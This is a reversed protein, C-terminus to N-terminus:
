PDASHTIRQSWIAPSSHWYHCHHEVSPWAIVSPGGWPSVNDLMKASDAGLSSRCGKAGSMKKNKKLFFVIKKKKMVRVLGLEWERGLTKEQSRLEKAESTMTTAEM